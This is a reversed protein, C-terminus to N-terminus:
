QVTFVYTATASQVNHADVVHFSVTYTGAPGGDFRLLGQSQNVWHIVANPDVGAPVSASAWFMITDGDPDAGTLQIDRPTFQAMPAPDTYSQTTPASNRFKFTVTGDSVQDAGAGNNDDFVQYRVDVQGFDGSGGTFSIKTGTLTVGAHVPDVLRILGNDGLTAGEALVDIQCETRCEDTADVAHPQLDAGVVSIKITGVANDNDNDYVIYRLTYSGRKNGTFVLKGDATKTFSWDKTPQTLIDLSKFGDGLGADNAVLNITVPQGVPATVTDDMPQPLDDISRIRVTVTGVATNGREDAMTYTFTDTGNADPAPKYFVTGGNVTITTGPRTSGSVGQLSLPTGDPDRDNALVDVVGSGDESIELVDDVAVPPEGNNLAVMAIVGHALKSNELGGYPTADGYAYVAGNSATLYYGLGSASPAMDVIRKEPGGDVASGHFKADGFAFIGGDGAVMWYGKGTPTAAMQQIRKVLKVAGTSGFFGADGFAFIGGDSAAMWYGKGTRTPVIDVIPKNLKIAGTSGFFGADGFAFIGGDSAVLWYGKGTQTAAMGVIPQNLKIAGTSGYFAASGFTFIGGDAAVMWYGKGDPTAAMGVIPQNLKIAGTSGLFAAKGFSFIGGDTAVLWYGSTTAPGASQASPAGATVSALGALISIALAIRVRRGRHAARSLFRRM